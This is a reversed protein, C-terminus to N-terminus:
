KNELITPRMPSCSLDLVGNADLWHNHKGASSIAADKTRGFGVQFRPDVYLIFPSNVICYFSNARPKM